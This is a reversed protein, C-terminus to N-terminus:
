RYLYIALHCIFNHSQLTPTQCSSDRWILVTYRTLAYGPSTGLRGIRENINVFTCIAMGTSVKGLSEFLHDSVQSFRVRAMGRM